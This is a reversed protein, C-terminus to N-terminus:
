KPYKTAVKGVGIDEERTESDEFVGGSQTITLKTKM